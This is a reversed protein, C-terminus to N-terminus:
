KGNGGCGCFPKDLCPFMTGREIGKDASYITVPNQYPVYAMAVVPDSPFPSIGGEIPYVNYNNNEM